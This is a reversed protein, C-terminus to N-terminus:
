LQEERYLAWQVLKGDRGLILLLAPYVLIQGTTTEVVRKPTGYLTDIETQGDGIKLDRATHRIYQPGTLLFCTQQASGTNDNFFYYSNTGPHLNHYFRQQPGLVVESAPVLDPLSYPNLLNMDDVVENGGFIRKVPIVPEPKGTLQGLNYAGLVSGQEKAASFAAKAKEMRGQREYLIGALVQADIATKAYPQQQAQKRATALVLRAGATDGLLSLACAKNLYAPAYRSDLLVASDFQTIALKLLRTREQKYDQGGKA